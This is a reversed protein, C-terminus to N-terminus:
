ETFDDFSVHEPREPVTWLITGEGAWRFHPFGDILGVPSIGSMLGAQSRRTSPLTFHPLVAVQPNDIHQVTFNTQVGQKDVSCRLHDVEFWVQWSQPTM